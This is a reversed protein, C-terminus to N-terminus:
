QVGAFTATLNLHKSDPSKLDSLLISNQKVGQTFMTRNQELISKRNIGGEMPNWKVGLRGTM